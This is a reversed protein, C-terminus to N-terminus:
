MVGLAKALDTMASPLPDDAMLLDRTGAVPPFHRRFLGTIRNFACNFDPVRRSDTNGPINASAVPCTLCEEVFECDRCQRSGSYRDRRLGPWDSRAIWEGLMPGARTGGADLPLLLACGARSGDVGVAQTEPARVKCVPRDPRPEPPTPPRRFLEFPITGTRGHHALCLDFVGEMQRELEAESARGWGEDHTLLPGMRISEVGRDLLYEISRSLFSLNASTLVMGVALRNRFWSAHDRRLRVLLEDLVDFTGPARLEHAERIGDLSIQVEVDHAVLFATKEHDLLMGNTTLSVRLPKPGSSSEQAYEVARQVLPWELLPEGGTLALTREDAESAGLRDISIRLVDWPISRPRPGGQHCYSCALNCATTLTTELTEINM